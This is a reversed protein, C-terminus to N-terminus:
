EKIKHTGSYDLINQDGSYEPYLILIISTIHIQFLRSACKEPINPLKETGSDWYLGSYM